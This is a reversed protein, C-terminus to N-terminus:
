VLFCEFHVFARVALLEAGLTVMVEPGTEPLTECDAAAENPKL